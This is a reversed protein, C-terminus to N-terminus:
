FFSQIENILVKDTIITQQFRQALAMPLDASEIMVISDNMICHLHKHSFIDSKEALHDYKEFIVQNTMLYEKQPFIWAKPVKTINELQSKIAARNPVRVSPDDKAVSYCAKITNYDALYLDSLAMYVDQGSSLVLKILPVGLKKFSSLIEKVRGDTVTTNTIRELDDGDLEVPLENVKIKEKGSSDVSEVPTDIPTKVEPESSSEKFQIGMEPVKPVTEPEAIKAPEQEAVASEQVSPITPSPEVSPQPVETGAAVKKEGCEMCFAASLPNVHGSSCTWDIPVPLTETPDPIPVAIPKSVPPEHEEPLVEKMASGCEICFRAFEETEAGCGTCVYKAAPSSVPTANPMESKLEISGVSDDVKPERKQSLAASLLNSYSPAKSPEPAGGSIPASNILVSSDSISTVNAWKLAIEQEDDNFFRCSCGKAVAQMATAEEKTTFSYVGELPSKRIALFSM